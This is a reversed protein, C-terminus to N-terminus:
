GSAISVSCPWRMSSLKRFPLCGHFDRDGLRDLAGDLVALHEVVLHEVDHALDHASLQRRRLDRAEDDAQAHLLFRDALERRRCLDHAFEGGRHRHLIGVVHDVDDAGASVRRMREVHGRRSREDRRGGAGLDRLVAVARNGRARAAGVDELRQAGVDGKRRLLDRAHTSFIPMPKM